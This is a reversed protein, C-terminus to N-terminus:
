RRRKARRKEFAELYPSKTPNTKENKERGIVIRGNNEENFITPKSEKFSELAKELTTEDNVLKNAEFLAYDLMDEKIGLKRAVKQNNINNLQKNTEEFKKNLENYSNQLTTKENTLRNVAEKTEDTTAKSNKVFAAFQDDNEFGYNKLYETKFENQLEGRLNVRQKEYYSDRITNVHENVGKAIADFNINGDTTNNQILEQLETNKM